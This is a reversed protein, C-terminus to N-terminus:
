EDIVDGGILKISRDGRRYQGERVLKIKFADNLADLISFLEFGQACDAAVNHLAVIKGSWRRGLFELEQEALWEDRCTGLRVFRSGTGTVLAARPHAIKARNLAIAETISRAGRSYGQVTAGDSRTSSLTATLVKLM